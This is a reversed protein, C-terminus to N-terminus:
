SAHASMNVSHTTTITTTHTHTHLTFAQHVSIISDSTPLQSTLTM